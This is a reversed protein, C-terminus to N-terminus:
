GVHVGVTHTTHPTRAIGRGCGVCEAARDTVRGGVEIRITGFVSTNAKGQLVAGSRGGRVAVKAGAVAIAAIASSSMAPQEEGLVGGAPGAEIVKPESVGGPIAPPVLLEIGMGMGPPELEAAAGAADSAGWPAFATVMLLKANAGALRVTGTPVVTVQVLLSSSGCVTTELSPVVNREGPIPVSAVNENVNGFAPVNAYTQEIWGIICPVTTTVLHGLLLIGM